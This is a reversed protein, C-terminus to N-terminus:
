NQELINIKKIRRCHREDGTFEANLYSDVINKALDRGIFYGGLSIVNCDNHEKCLKAGLYDHVLACRIGNIKNAAISIGIGSGCFIIGRNEPNKLVENSMKEAYDPYDVSVEESDCGVDVIEYINKSSLYLKVAEKLLYGGHDAALVITKKIKNIDM